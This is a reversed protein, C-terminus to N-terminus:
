NFMDLRRKRENEKEQEEKELRKLRLYEYGGCVVTIILMTVIVGPFGCVTLLIDRLKILAEM